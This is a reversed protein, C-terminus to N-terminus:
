STWYLNAMQIEVNENKDDLKFIDKWPLLKSVKNASSRLNGVSKGIQFSLNISKLSTIQLIGMLIAIDDSSPVPVKNNLERKGM